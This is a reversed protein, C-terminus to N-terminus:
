PVPDPAELERGRGLPDSLELAQLAVVPCPPEHARLQHRWDLAGLPRSEEVRRRQEAAVPDRAVAGALADLDHLRQRPARLRGADAELAADGDGSEISLAATDM